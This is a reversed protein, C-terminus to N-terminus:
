RSGALGRAALIVDPRNTVMGNAGNQWFRIAREPDDVTWVHVTSSHGHATRIFRATPVRLGYYNDPVAFARCAPNPPGLSFYVRAIDRRSAGLNFPPRAFATLARWDGGAVVARDTAQCDLLERAVADQVQAEKIEILVPIGPFTRLVDRLRPVGIGRDRFSYGPVEAERFRYGADLEGLEQSTLASVSGQHNTTRDLTPDHMVVAVGDAALRVDFELADAGLEIARHFSPM